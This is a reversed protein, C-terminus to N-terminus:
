FVERWKALRRLTVPPASTSYLQQNTTGTIIYPNGKNGSRNMIVVPRSPIGTGIAKVAATLASQGSTLAVGTSLNLAGDGTTMNVAYLKANGGGTGCAVTTVPTFTTFFVAGNFVDAAALSKEGSDEPTYVLYWGQTFSGTGGSLNAIGQSSESLASGNTMDTNDKIGYFRNTSESNPHNRDGTGFFVWLNGAHDNALAPATYIAQEPYYEGPPPSTESPNAAFLRKGKQAPDWNTIVNGSIVAATALDFKWLQGGIDGTYVRDVYGDNNLDVATPNAALSFNMYQRDDSSHSPGPKYYEWLKKGDALDIVFFALGTNNNQATDYGGGVFAVYKSRGDALKIRGIAPESWTEGMKVDTFSWLYQPSTTSTIDLATYNRGGRREGFVVITRWDSSSNCSGDTKSNVCIDAAIPSSDVYYDHEGSIDTLDRLRGLLDPPIFAWSEDGDIERFAHLMGDNAGTILVTTRSANALKFEQYTIDTSSLFPPTVLVPTSHFIDGLKWPREETKNGDLDDDNFDKAGRIFDIVNDRAQTATTAGLPFPANEVGLLAATVNTNNFEQRSWKGSNYIATYTKRDGAAKQSLMYGAEWDPTGTPVGQADVPILGNADRAYAKLFGRWFPRSPDSQFAALYARNSGSTGTTPIVPTAFSFTAALIRRIADQLAIELESSNNATYFKGGGKTAMEQLDALAQKEDSNAPNLSFGVTHVLVNQKGPFITENTAHDQTYRSSAETVPSIAPSEDTWLGDSIVIAFNPQCSYQIPSAYTQGNRLTEGKYYRGVDDMQRGLPTWGGVTIANVATVIASKATGIEAVIGGGGSSKSSGNNVFRMVGFRVGEVNNVLNNIVRKAVDIKDEYACSTCSGYLYNLYKGLYLDVNSRRIRGSWHGVTNLATQADDSNVDSVSNKYVDYNSRDKDYVKGSSYGGSYTGSPDYPINTAIKGDDSGDDDGMSGSTDLVILVNPAINSGFIDSDDAWVPLHGPFVLSLSM